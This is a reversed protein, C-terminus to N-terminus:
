KGGAILAARESNARTLYSEMQEYWGSELAAENESPDNKVHAVKIEIAKIYEDYYAVTKKSGQNKKALKEEDVKFTYSHSSPTSNVTKTDKVATNINTNVEKQASLSAFSFTCVLLTLLKM